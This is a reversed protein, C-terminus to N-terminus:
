SCVHCPAKWTLETLIHNLQSLRIFHGPVLGCWCAIELSFTTSLCPGNNYQTLSSPSQTQFLLLSHIYHHWLISSLLPYHPNSCRSGSGFKMSDFLHARLVPDSLCWNPFTYKLAKVLKILPWSVTLHAFASSSSPSPHHSVLQLTLFYCNLLWDLPANFLHTHKSGFLDSHIHHSHILFYIWSLLVLWPLTLTINEKLWIDRGISIDNPQDMWTRYNTWLEAQSTSMGACHCEEIQDRLCLWQALYLGRWTDGTM